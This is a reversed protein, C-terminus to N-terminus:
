KLNPLSSCVTRFIANSEELTGDRVADIMRMKLHSLNKWRAAMVRFLDCRELRPIVTTDLYINSTVTVARIRPCNFLIHKFLEIEAIKNSLSFRSFEFNSTNPNLLQLLFCHLKAYSFQDTLNILYQVVDQILPDASICSQTLVFNL